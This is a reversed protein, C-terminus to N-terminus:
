GDILEVIAYSEGTFGLRRLSVEQGDRQTDVLTLWGSRPPTSVDVALDFSYAPGWVLGFSSPSAGCSVYIAYPCDGYNGCADAFRLVLDTAEDGNLDGNWVTTAPGMGPDPVVTLPDLEITARARCHAPPAIPTRTTAAVPASSESLSADSEV